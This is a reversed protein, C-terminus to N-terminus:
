GDVRGFLDISDLARGGWDFLTLNDNPNGAGPEWGVVPLWEPEWYFFGLGRGNPAQRVAAYVDRAFMEQGEPSAPYGDPMETDETVFNALDDGNDLTWPYATEVVAIDHDYRIALDNVNNRLDTLSGHWFPYFSLGIVDFDVDQELLHDYFWRADANNGGRDIHIMTRLEHGAPNGARAGALGANVLTAFEAWRPPDQAYIQGVPWLMGATVENGIQVMDVPSGQAALEAIVDRTYDHVTQSLEELEQGEWAAPIPQKGPDAWFDSYHFDLLIRHGAGAARRAMTKVSTLDSYGAPPDVWLRLRIWNAGHDALIHEVARTGRSDSYRGGAAEVQPAFSIDAGRIAEAAASETTFVRLEAVCPPTGPSGLQLRVVRAKTDVAVTTLGSDPRGTWATQWRRTSTATQITARPAPATVAAWTVAIDTVHTAQPLEVELVPGRGGARQREGEGVAGDSAPCWATAADLDTAAAASAAAQTAHVRGGHAVNISPGDRRSASTRGAGAPASAAIVLPLVLACLVAIRAHM